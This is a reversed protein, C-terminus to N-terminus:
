GKERLSTGIMSHINGGLDTFLNFGNQKCSVHSSGVQPMKGTGQIHRVSRTFECENGKVLTLTFHSLRKPECRLLQCDMRAPVRAGEM